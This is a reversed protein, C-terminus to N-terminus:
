LKRQGKRKNKLIQKKKRFSAKDSYNPILQLLKVLMRSSNKNEKSITMKDLNQDVLGLEKIRGNV